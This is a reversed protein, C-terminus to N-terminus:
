PSRDTSPCSSPRAGVDRRLHRPDVRRSLRPRSAARSSRSPAAYAGPSGPARALRNLDAGLYVAIGHHPPRRLAPRAKRASAAAPMRPTCSPIPWTATNRAMLEPPLEVALLRSRNRPAASSSTGSNFFSEFFRWSSARRAAGAEPSYPPASIRSTAAFFSGFSSPNFASAVSGRQGLGAPAPSSRDASRAAVVGNRAHYEVRVAIARAADDAAAAARHRRCPRRCPAGPSRNEM